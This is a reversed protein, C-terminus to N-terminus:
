FNFIEKIEEWKSEEKRLFKSYEEFINGIVADRSRHGDELDEISVEGLQNFFKKCGEKCTHNKDRTLEYRKIIKFDLNIEDEFCSLYTKYYYDVYYDKFSADGVCNFSYKETIAGQNEQLVIYDEYMKAGTLECLKVLTQDIPVSLSLYQGHASQEFDNGTNFYVSDLGKKPVLIFDEDLSIIASRIEKWTPFDFCKKM